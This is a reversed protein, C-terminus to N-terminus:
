LVVGIHLVKFSLTIGGMNEFTLNILTAMAVIHGKVLFHSYQHPGYMDMPNRAQPPDCYM